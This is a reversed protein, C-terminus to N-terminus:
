ATFGANEGYLVSAQFCVREVWFVLQLHYRRSLSRNRAFCICRARASTTGHSHLALFSACVQCMLRGPALAWYTGYATLKGNSRVQLRASTQPCTM